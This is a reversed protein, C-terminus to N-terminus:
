LNPVFLLAIAYYFAQRSSTKSYQSRRWLFFLLAMPNEKKGGSFRTCTNLTGVIFCSSPCAGYM